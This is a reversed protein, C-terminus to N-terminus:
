TGRPTLRLPVFVLIFWEGGVDWSPDAPPPVFDPIFWEGGVDWSPDAPPPVFDPIFWEGGVDWSPDAPPPVFDPIFTRVSLGVSRCVSRSCYGRVACACRPNVLVEQMGLDPDVRHLSEKLKGLFVCSFERAERCEMCPWKFKPKVNATAVSPRRHELGLPFFRGNPRKM